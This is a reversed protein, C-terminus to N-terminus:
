DGLNKKLIENVKAPNAAGKTEKMVQGVLHALANKKGSKYDNVSKENNVIVARVVEEIKITDSIQAMGSSAVIDEPAKGTKLAEAIVDKAMKGSITGKDIMKLVSVLGEAKIGLASVPIDATKLFAMISGMILNAAAKRNEYLKACVEFYDALDSESTIVGADYETLGFEKM